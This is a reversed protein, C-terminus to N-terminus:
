DRLSPSSYFLCVSRRVLDRAAQERITFLESESQRPMEDLSQEQMHAHLEAQTVDRGDLVLVITDDGERAATWASETSGRDRISIKRRRSM